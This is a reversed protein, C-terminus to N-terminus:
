VRAGTDDRYFVAETVAQIRSKRVVEARLDTEITASRIWVGSFEVPGVVFWNVDTVIRDLYRCNLLGLCLTQRQFLSDCGVDPHGNCVRGSGREFLPDSMIKVSAVPVATSRRELITDTQIYAVGLVM